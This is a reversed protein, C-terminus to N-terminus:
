RDVKGGVVGNSPVAIVGGTLAANSSDSKVWGYVFPLDRRFQRGAADLDSYDSTHRLVRKWGPDCCRAACIPDIWEHAGSQCKM